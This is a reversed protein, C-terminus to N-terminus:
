RSGRADAVICTCGAIQQFVRTDRPVLVTMLSRSVSAHATVIRRTRAILLFPRSELLPDDAEDVAFSAERDRDEPIARRPETPLDLRLENHNLSSPARVYQTIQLLEESATGHRDIPAEVVVPFVHVPIGDLSQRVECCPDNWEEFLVWQYGRLGIFKPSERSNYAHHRRAFMERSFTEGADRRNCLRHIM